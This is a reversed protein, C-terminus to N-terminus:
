FYWIEQKFICVLSQECVQSACLHFSPIANAIPGNGIQETKPFVFVDIEEEKLISPDDM